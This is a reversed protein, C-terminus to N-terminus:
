ISPIEGVVSNSDFPPLPDQTKQKNQLPEEEEEPMERKVSVFLVNPTVVHKDQKVNLDM